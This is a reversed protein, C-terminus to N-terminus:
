YTVVVYNPRATQIPHWPGHGEPCHPVGPLPYSAIVTLILQIRPMSLMGDVIMWVSLM